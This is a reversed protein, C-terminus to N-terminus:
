PQVVKKKEQQLRAIRANIVDRYEIPLSASLYYLFRISAESGESAQLFQSALGVALPPANPRRIAESMLASARKDDHLFDHALYGAMFPMEWDWTRANAGKSLLDVAASTGQERFAMLGTTLRYIDWFWPDLQQAATLRAHLKQWLANHDGSQTRIVDYISFVALLNFDAAAGAFPGALMKQADPHMCETLLPPRDTTQTQQHFLSMGYLCLGLAM